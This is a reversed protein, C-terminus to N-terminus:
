FQPQWTRPKWPEPASSLKVTDGSQELVYFGTKLAYDRVQDSVIAGAVAGLYKRKDQHEDAYRRLIEMRAVHDQVDEVAPKTKVEVALVYDGNELFIDVETLSKGQPTAIDVNPGARTFVYGLANFKEKINPLVIHEILEGQRSSLRDIARHTEQSKRDTEQFKRDTEQFKRDTEKMQRATEEQSKRLDRMGAMFEEFASSFDLAQTTGMVAEQSPTRFGAKEIFISILMTKILLTVYRSKM